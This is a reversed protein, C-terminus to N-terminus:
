EDFRRGGRGDQSKMVCKEARENKYTTSAM